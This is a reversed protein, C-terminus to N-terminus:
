WSRHASIGTSNRSASPGSPLGTKEEVPLADFDARLLVVPGAGNRLVGVVGTGGVETTVEFGAPGLAEAVRQATRFEQLSLEPHRHLDRYFDALQERLGPSRDWPLAAM